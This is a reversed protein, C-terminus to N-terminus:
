SGIRDELKQQPGPREIALLGDRDTALILLIRSLRVGHSDKSIDPM